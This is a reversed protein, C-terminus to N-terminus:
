DPCTVSRRNVIRDVSRMASRILIDSSEDVIQSQCRYHDKWLTGVISCAAMRKTSPRSQKIISVSLWKPFVVPAVEFLYIDRLQPM